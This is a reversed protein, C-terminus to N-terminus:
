HTDFVWEFVTPYTDLPVEDPDVVHQIALGIDIAISTTALAEAAIPPDEGRQRFTEKVGAAVLQRTGRWFEAAITRFEPDRAAHALLELWLSFLWKGEQAGIISALREGTQRPTPPEDAERWERAMQRYAEYVREQLLEAFLEEKSRYNAYFAGRSFGARETIQEISTAQLGQAAVLEAATARLSARTHERSEARTM